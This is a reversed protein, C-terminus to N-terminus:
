KQSIPQYNPSLFVIESAFIVQVVRYANSDIIPREAFASVPLDETVPPLSRSPLWNM